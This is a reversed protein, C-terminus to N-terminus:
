RRLLHGEGAGRRDAERPESRDESAGAGTEGRAVPFPRQSQDGDDGAEADPDGDRDAEGGLRERDVAAVDHEDADGGGDEEDGREGLRAAPAEEEGPVLARRREREGRCAAAGRDAAEGQGAAEVLDHADRDDAPEARSAPM